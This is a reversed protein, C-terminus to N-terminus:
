GIAERQIHPMVTTFSNRQEKPNTTWTVSSCRLLILVVTNAFAFSGQTQNVHSNMERGEWTRTKVRPGRGRGSQHLLEDALLLLTEGVLGGVVLKLTGLVTALPVGSSKVAWANLDGGNRGVTM